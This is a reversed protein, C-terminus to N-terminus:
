ILPLSNPSQHNVLSLVSLNVMDLITAAIYGVILGIAIAGMRLFRNKFFSM